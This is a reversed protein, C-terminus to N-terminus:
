FSVNRFVMLSPCLALLGVWKKYWEWETIAGELVGTNALNTSYKKLGKYSICEKSGVIKRLFV